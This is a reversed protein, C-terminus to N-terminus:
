QWGVGITQLTSMLNWKEFFDDPVARLDAKIQQAYGASIAGARKAKEVAELWEARSAPGGPADM